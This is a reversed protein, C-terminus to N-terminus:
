FHMRFGLQIVRGSNRAGTVQGFSATGFQSGPQGFITINLANTAEGRFELFVGEKIAFQKQVAADWDIFGDQRLLNRTANGVTYQAPMSFAATNFWQQLTPHKLSPDGSVSPYEYFRGGLTGINQIDTPLVVSYPFGSDLSIVGSINWNGIVGNALRNKLKVPVKYVYSVALRQPTDFGAPGKVQLANRTPTEYPSGSNVLSDVDDLNKSQTYSALFTLNNSWRKELKVSVGDYWSSYGNYGNDIYPPFNPYNQRAAIPGPGPPNALNDIIQGSLKKGRSGFYVVEFIMSPTLQRQISATYEHVYPTRSSAPWANLCQQCGLPVTSGQAATPFVNPFIADPVVSNLQAATQPFAFPWNGRNGQQTQGYNVGFSDYFLAYSARAVTKPTLQYAIGVRPAFNNRDPQLLGPPANPPAGTIPNKKTILYQGTEWLFTGSGNHNVMPSVYEYRVGYNLSLRVTAKWNDQFYASWASGSMDGQTTGIDRAANLPLGLLYSAMADGGSNNAPNATQSPAYTVSTGTQNDVKFSTRIANGGFQLTHSGATKVVDGVGSLQWQPGYISAGQAMGSWGPITVPPIITLGQMAPWTDLTGVAKAIAFNAAGVSDWFLRSVGFRGTVVFTPSITVTDSAVANTNRRYDLGPLEPRVQNSTTDRFESYRAFFGNRTGFQHDARASWQDGRFKVPGTTFFNALSNGPISGPAINPRPLFMKILTESSANLLNSPIVNNPFPQRSMTKGDALTVTSYPNFISTSGFDGALQADTPVRMISQSGSSQRLGEFYGFFYWAKKPPLLKPFNVPGGAAAGFMNWRYKAISPTFFNRADLSSNRLYEWVDGHYSNTGSRTVMNINAGAAHGYAGSAMGSEMKMEGVADVPPMLVTGNQLPENNPIGDLTWNNSRQRQGYFSPNSGGSGSVSYVTGGDPANRAAVGPVLVTLNSINRGGIPLESLQQHDIGQGVTATTTQLLPPADVVTVTAGATALRMVVNITTAQGSSLGFEAVTEVQFGSKKVTLKYRGPPIAAILYGGEGSTVAERVYKQVTSELTLGASPVSAGAPDVVTGGLSATSLQARLTGFGVVLLLTLASALATSNRFGSRMLMGSLQQAM